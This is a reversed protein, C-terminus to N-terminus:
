RVIDLSKNNYAKKSEVEQHRLDVTYFYSINDENM